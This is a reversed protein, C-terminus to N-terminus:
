NRHIKSVAFYVLTISGSYKDTGKYSVELKRAKAAPTGPALNLNDRAVRRAEEDNAENQLESIYAETSDQYEISSVYINPSTKEVKSVFDMISKYSSNEFNVAVELKDVKATTNELITNIQEELEKETLGSLSKKLTNLKDQVDASLEGDKTAKGANGALAAQAGYATTVEDGDPGPTPTPASLADAVNEILNTATETLSEDSAAATNEAPQEQMLTVFSLTLAEAITPPNEKGDFKAINTEQSSTFQIVTDTLNTAKLKNELDKIIIDQKLSPFWDKTALEIDADLQDVEKELAKLQGDFGKLENLTKKNETIQSRITAMKEVQTKYVCFYFLASLAAIAVLILLVKERQSLKKGKLFEM